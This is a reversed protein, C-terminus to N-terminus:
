NTVSQVEGVNHVEMVGVTACLLSSDLRSSVHPAHCKLRVCLSHVNCSVKSIRNM